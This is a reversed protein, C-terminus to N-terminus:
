DHTLLHLPQQALLEAHGLHEVLVVPDHRDGDERRSRTDHGLDARHVDVAVGRHLDAVARDVGALHVLGLRAVEGLRADRRSAEGHLQAGVVGGLVREALLDRSVHELGAGPDVDARGALALAEGADHLAVAEV